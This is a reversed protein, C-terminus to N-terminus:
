KVVSLSFWTQNTQSPHPDALKVAKRMAYIRFVGALPVVTFDEHILIRMMQASAEQAGELTQSALAKEAWTDLAGGPAFRETGPNKSYMRLVPLFAPNGDNQNPVELDLDFKNERYYGSYTPTDPAKKIVVDVGVARLQAQLFELATSSVEAWAILELRLARGAKQRVGDAGPVWGAQDLLQKAKAPDYAPQPVLEVFKGLVSPPAMAHGPAANGDFVTDVYAKRDLALSIAQRVTRDNLIDRPAKGNRYLYILQNRGPPSQVVSFGASEMARVADPPLNVVFDVDGARLAQIRTQPDPLFRVVLRKVKPKEGWYDEFRELVVTQLRQYDVVKFPGTGPTGPQDPHRGKPMIAGNPHVIQEPLRLNPVAPTIDVIFDDVKKVANPGLTNAVTSLAKGKLQREGWTWVIDDATLPSGDHWRVGKRIHFRWTNPPVLEWREALGPKLSYDSALYILPEFVNVNLPYSFVTAKEREGQVPWQDEDAAVRIEAETDVQQGAPAAPACAAVAVACALALGWARRM